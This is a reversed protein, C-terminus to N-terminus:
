NNNLNFQAFNDTIKKEFLNYSETIFNFKTRTDFVNEFTFFCLCNFNDFNGEYGNINVKESYDLINNPIKGYDPTYDDDGFVVENYKSFVNFIKDEKKTSSNNTNTKNDSDLINNGGTDEDEVDNIINQPMDVQIIEAENSDNKKIKIAGEEKEKKPNNEYEYYMMLLNVRSLDNEKLFRIDNSIIEKFDSYNNMLLKKIYPDDKKLGSSYQREFISEDKVITRRGYKSSAIKKPKPKKKDFRLLQWYKFFNKPINQVLTNRSVFALITNFNNIKIKFIGILVPLFSGTQGKGNQIYKFYEKIMDAIHKSSKNNSSIEEDDTEFFDINFKKDYSKFSINKINKFYEEKANVSTLSWFLKKNEIDNNKINRKFHSLLSFAIRKSILNSNMINFVCQTSFYTYIKVKINDTNIGLIENFKTFPSIDDKLCLNFELGNEGIKKSDIFELARSENNPGIASCTINLEEKLKQNNISNTSFFKSSYVEFLSIMLINLYQDFFYLFYDEIYIENKYIPLLESDEPCIPILSMENENEDSSDDNDNSIDFGFDSFRISEEYDAGNLYTDFDNPFISSFIGVISDRLKYLSFKSTSLISLDIVSDIVLISLIMFSGIIVITKFTYQFLDIQEKINKLTLFNYIVYILYFVNSIIKKIIIKLLKKKKNFEFQSLLLCLNIYIFITAINLILFIIWKWKDLLIFPTNFKDGNESIYKKEDLPDYYNFVTICITIFFLIFEYIKMSKQEFIILFYHFPNKYTFYIELSIFFNIFYIIIIYANFIYEQIQYFIDNRSNDCLGFIIALTLCFYYIFCIGTLFAKELFLDEEKSRLKKNKRLSHFMSFNIFILISAIILNLTEITM